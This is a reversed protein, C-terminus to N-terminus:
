HREKIIKQVYFADSYYFNSTSTIQKLKNEFLIIRLFTMLIEPHGPVAYDIFKKNCNINHFNSFGLSSSEEGNFAETKINLSCNTNLSLVWAISNKLFQPRYDRTELYKLPRDSIIIDCIMGFNDIAKIHCIPLNEGFVTEEFARPHIVDKCLHPINEPRLKYVWIIDQKQYTNM